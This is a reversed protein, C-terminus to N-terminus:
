CQDISIASSALLVTAASDRNRETEMNSIKIYRRGIATVM